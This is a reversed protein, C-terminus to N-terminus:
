LQEKEGTQLQQYQVEFTKMIISWDYVQFATDHCCVRLEQSFDTERVHQAVKKYASRTLESLIFGVGKKRALAGSDGICDSLIVPLGAALYEAFKIPSAARNVLNDVRLLVGVDAVALHSHMQDHPLSIVTLNSLPFSHESAIQEVQEKSRSFVLLHFDPLSGLMVSSLHFLEDIKQWRHTSGAYVMVFKDTLGLRTRFESRELEEPLPKVHTGSPTLVVKDGPAFYTDSLYRRFYESVCFVRDAADIMKQKLKRARVLERSNFVARGKEYIKEWFYVGHLDLVMPIDSSRLARETLYGADFGHAHVIDIGERKMLKRLFRVLMNNLLQRSLRRYEGYVPIVTFGIGNAKFNERLETFRGALERASRWNPCTLVHVAYGLQHLETVESLFQIGYGSDNELGRYTFYLLKPKVMM